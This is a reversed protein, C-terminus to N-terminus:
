HFFLRDKNASSGFYFFQGGPGRAVCLPIDLAGVELDSAESLGFAASFRPTYHVEKKNAMHTAFRVTVWGRQGKPPFIIIEPRAGHAKSARVM